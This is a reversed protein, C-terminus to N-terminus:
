HGQMGSPPVATMARGVIQRVTTIVRLSEDPARVREADMELHLLEDFLLRERAPSTGISNMFLLDLLRRIFPCDPSPPLDRV